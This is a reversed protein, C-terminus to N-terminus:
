SAGLKALDAPAVVQPRGMPRLEMGRGDRSPNRSRWRWVASQPHATATTSHSPRQRRPPPWDLAASPPTRTRWGQTAPRGPVRARSGPADEDVTTFVATGADTSSHAYLRLALSPDIHGLRHQVTRADSGSAGWETAASHRLGHLTLGDLGVARVAPDLVPYRLNSARVPGGISDHFLLGGPNEGRDLERHATFEPTLASPFVLTRLSSRTKPEGITVLSGIESVARSITITRGDLDIDTWRLGLAEGIRLGM